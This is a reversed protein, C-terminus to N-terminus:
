LEGAMVARFAFLVHFSLIRACTGQVILTIAAQILDEAACLWHSFWFMGRGELIGKAVRMSGLVLMPQGLVDLRVIEGETEILLFAYSSYLYVCVM